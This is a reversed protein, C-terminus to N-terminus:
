WFSTDHTAPVYDGIRPKKRGSTSTIVFGPLHAPVHSRQIYVFLMHMEQQVWWQSSVWHQQTLFRAM